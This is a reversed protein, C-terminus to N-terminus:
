CQLLLFTPLLTGLVSCNQWCLLALLLFSSLMTLHPGTPPHPLQKWTIAYCRTALPPAM